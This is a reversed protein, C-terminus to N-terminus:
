ARSLMNKCQDEQISVVLNAAQVQDMAKVMQQQLYLDENARCALYGVLM